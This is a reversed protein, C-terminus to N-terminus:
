VTEYPLLSIEKNYRGSLPIICKQEEINFKIQYWPINYGYKSLLESLKASLRRFNKKTAPKFHFESIVNKIATELLITTDIKFEFKFVKSMHEFLSIKSSILTISEPYKRYFLAWVGPQKLMYSLKSTHYTNGDFGYEDCVWNIVENLDLNHGENSGIKYTSKGLILRYGQDFDVNILQTDFQLITFM